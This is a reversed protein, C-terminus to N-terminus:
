PERPMGSRLAIDAATVARDLRQILECRTGYLQGTGQDRTEDGGKAKRFFGTAPVCRRGAGATQLQDPNRGDFLAVAGADGFATGIALLACASRGARNREPYSATESATRM